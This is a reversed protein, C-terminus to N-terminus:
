IRAGKEKKSSTARADGGGGGGSVRRTGSGGGAARGGARTRATCPWRAGRGATTGSVGSRRGRRPAARPPVHARRRGRADPTPARVSRAYGRPTARGVGLCLTAAQFTLLRPRLRARAVRPAFRKPKADFPSDRPLARSKWADGSPTTKGRRRTGPDVFPAPTGRSVRGPRTGERSTRTKSANRSARARLRPSAPPSASATSATSVAPVARKEKRAGRARRRRRM